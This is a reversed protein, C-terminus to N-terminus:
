PVAVILVNPPYDRRSGANGDTVGRQVGGDGAIRSWLNVNRLPMCTM